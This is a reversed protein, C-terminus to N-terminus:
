QVNYETTTTTILEASHSSIPEGRVSQVVASDIIGTMAAAIQAGTASARARPINLTMVGGQNSNFNLRFDHRTDM